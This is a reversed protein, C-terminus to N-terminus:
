DWQVKRYSSFVELMESQSFYSESFDGLSRSKVTKEKNMKMSIYEAATLSIDESFKIRQIIIRCSDEENVVPESVTIKNVAVSAITFIQDNQYSGKVSVENGSVFGYKTFDMSESNISKDDAAFTIGYCEAFQKTAFSNIHNVVFNQVKKILLIILGDRSTEEAPIQLITKVEELTTIPM